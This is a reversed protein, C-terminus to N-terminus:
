SFDELDIAPLPSRWYAFHSYEPWSLAFSGKQGLPPFILEVLETLREYRHPFPDVNLILSFREEEAKM